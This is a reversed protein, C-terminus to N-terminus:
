PTGDMVNKTWHGVEPRLCDPLHSVSLFPILSFLPAFVDENASIPPPTYVNEKSSIPPTYVSENATATVDEDSSFPLTHVDKNTTFIQTLAGDVLKNTGDPQALSAGKDIEKAAAVDNETEITIRGLGTIKRPSNTTM